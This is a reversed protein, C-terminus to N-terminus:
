FNQFCKQCFNISIKKGQTKQLELPCDASTATKQYEMERNIAQQKTKEMLDPGGITDYGFYNEIIHAKYANSNAIIGFIVTKLGARATYIAASLGAPGAGIIAVDYM